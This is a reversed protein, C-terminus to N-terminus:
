TILNYKLKSHKRMLTYLMQWHLKYFVSQFRERPKGLIRLVAVWGKPSALRRGGRCPGFWGGIIGVDGADGGVLGMCTLLRACLLLKGCKPGLCISDAGVWGKFGCFIEKQSVNTPVGLGLIAYSIASDKSWINVFKLCVSLLTCTFARNNLKHFILIKSTCVM